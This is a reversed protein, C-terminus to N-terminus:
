GQHMVKVRVRVCGVLRVMGGLLTPVVQVFKNKDINSGDGLQGNNNRGTAWVTGNTKLVLSYAFGAAMAKVDGALM